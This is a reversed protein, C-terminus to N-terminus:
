EYPCDKSSFAANLEHVESTTADSGTMSVLSAMCYLMKAHVTEPFSHLRAGISKLYRVMLDLEQYSLQRATRPSRKCMSTMLYGAQAALNVIGYCRHWRQDRSSGRPVSHWRADGRVRFALGLEHRHSACAAAEAKSRLAAM